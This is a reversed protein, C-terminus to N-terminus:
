WNMKPVKEWYQTSPLPSPMHHFGSIKFKLSINVSKLPILMNQSHIYVFYLVKILVASCVVFCKKSSHSDRQIHVYLSLFHDM